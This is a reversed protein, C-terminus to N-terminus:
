ETCIWKAGYLADGREATDGVSMGDREFAGGTTWALVNVNWDFADVNRGITPQHLTEVKFARKASNPANAAASLKMASKPSCSLGRALADVTLKLGLKM